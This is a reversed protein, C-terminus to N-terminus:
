TEGLRALGNCDDCFRAEGVDTESQRTADRFGSDFWNGLVFAFGYLLDFGRVRGLDAPQPVAAVDFALKPLPVALIGGVPPRHSFASVHGRVDGRLDDDSGCLPQHENAM